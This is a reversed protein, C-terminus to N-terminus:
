NSLAKALNKFKLKTFNTCTTLKKKLCDVDFKHNILRKFQFKIADKKSNNWKINKNGVKM